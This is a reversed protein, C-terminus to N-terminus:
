KEVDFGYATISMFEEDPRLIVSPYDPRNPSDPFHQTELCFASRDPYRQGAKGTFGSRMLNATYLQVGPETTEVEMVIGTQPSYCRACPVVSNDDKDSRNIIYTHDYGNGFALQEFSDNIRSGILTPTRFDMPTGEVAAKAGYPIATKDIPLFYDANITLLHDCITPNGVGSLNFYSHNTLNLVTPQDTAARYLIVLKNNDTLHYTVCTKLTGPFGEEGDPSVHILAITQEDIRKFIDWVVTNFGKLGGHLSNPGNNLALRDYVIGDLTFRGGAIRNAYRGCVAGFYPQPSNLYDDITQHGTVVDILKGDRDPVMLSVVKAGYNTIAAECGSKNTLVFLETRKGDIIKNFDSTSLGSLTHKDKM